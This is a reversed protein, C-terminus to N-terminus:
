RAYPSEEDLTPKPTAVPPATAPPAAPARVALVRPKDRPRAKAPTPAPSSQAPPSPVDGAARQGSAASAPIETPTTPAAPRQALTPAAAPPALSLGVIVSLAASVGLVGFAAAVLNRTAKRKPAEPQQHESASVPRKRAVSAPTGAAAMAVLFDEEDADPSSQAQQEIKERLASRDMAFNRSLWDALDRETPADPRGRLHKELADAFDGSTAYRDQKDWKLARACIRILEAPADDRPAPMPPLRDNVLEMLAQVDHRDGWYRRGAIAEWLMVGASFVDARQDVVQAMAQEPAAYATKGKFIGTETHERSIAAKAIGFDVVKVRGDYTVFVNQPSIDRHVVCLPRGDLDALQHAYSLGRLAAVLVHLHLALPFRNAGCGQRFRNLPQGDLFEMMLYYLGEREGAEYTHVINPHELKVALRAEDLFMARHPADHALEPRLLKLVVLKDAGGFGSNVVLYVRAMGGEGLLAVNRFRHAASSTM